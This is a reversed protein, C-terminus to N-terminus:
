AAAAASAFLTLAAPVEAPVRGARLQRVVEVSQLVDEESYPKRLVGLGVGSEEAEHTNGSAYLVTVGALDELEAAFETGSDGDALRIDLLVLDPRSRAAHALAETRRRAPGIVRHGARTLCDELALALLFEDEVVLIDM